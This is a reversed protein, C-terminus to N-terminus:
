ITQHQYMYIGWTGNHSSWVDLLCDSVCAVEFTHLSAWPCPFRTIVTEQGARPTFTTMKETRAPKTRWSLKRVDLPMDADLTHVALTASTIMKLPLDGELQDGLEPLIVVLSCEEMGFDVSRFQAITHTQGDVFLHQERPSVTGLATMHEHEALPGIQVPHDRFVQAIARPEILIPNVRSPKVTGSNYLEDLGVYQNAIELKSLDPISAPYVTHFVYSVYLLALIDAVSFAIIVGILFTSPFQARCQSEESACSQPLEDNLNSSYYADELLKSQEEVNPM